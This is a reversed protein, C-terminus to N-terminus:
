QLCSGSCLTESRNKTEFGFRMRHTELYPACRAPVFRLKSTATLGSAALDELSLGSRVLLAGTSTFSILGRDFLKDITASLLLGNYEDLRESNQSDKWALAHSATLAEEIGLGTVACRGGWVKLMRQRFSGQGIRANILARRTTESIDRCSSDAVLEAAAGVAAFDGSVLPDSECWGSVLLAEALQPRLRWVFHGCSDNRGAAVCIAQVKNEMQDADVGLVDAFMRGLRGYQGNAAVYSAYGGFEALAQMSLEQALANGHSCLMERQSATMAPAIEALAAQYRAAPFSELELLLDLKRTTTSSVSEVTRPGAPTGMPQIGAGVIFRHLVPDIRYGQVKHQAQLSMEGGGKSRSPPYDAVRVSKGDFVVGRIVEEITQVVESKGHRDRGIVFGFQGDRKKIRYPYREVGDIDVLAFRTDISDIKSGTNRVVM